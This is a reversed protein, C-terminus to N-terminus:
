VCGPGTASPRLIILSAELRSTIHRAAYSPPFVATRFSYFPRLFPRCSGLATQWSARFPRIRLFGNTLVLRAKARNSWNILEVSAARCAKAPLRPPPRRAPPSRTRSVIVSLSVHLAKFRQLKLYNESPAGAPKGNVLELWGLWEEWLGAGEPPGNGHRDEYDLRLRGRTEGYYGRQGVFTSRRPGPSVVSTDRLLFRCRGKARPYLGRLREGPAAVPTALGHV